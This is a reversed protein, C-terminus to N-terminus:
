DIHMAAVQTSCMTCVQMVHRGKRMQVYAQQGFYVGQLVTGSLAVFSANLFFRITTELKMPASWNVM